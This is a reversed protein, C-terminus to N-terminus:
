CNRVKARRRGCSAKGQCFGCNEDSLSSELRRRARLSNESQCHYSHTVNACTSLLILARVAEDEKQGMWFDLHVSIVRLPFPSISSSRRVRHFITLTSSPLESWEEGILPIMSSHERTGSLPMRMRSVVSVSRGLVCSCIVSSKGTPCRRSTGCCCWRCGSRVLRCSESDANRNNQIFTIM